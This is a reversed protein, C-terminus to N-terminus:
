SAIRLEEELTSFDNCFALDRCLDCEVLGVEPLPDFNWNHIESFAALLSNREQCKACFVRWGKTHSILAHKILDISRSYVINCPRRDLSSSRHCQYGGGFEGQAEAVSLGHISVFHKAREAVTHLKLDCDHCVCPYWTPESYWSAATCLNPGDLQKESPGSYFDWEEYPKTVVAFAIEEMHRGIHRGRNTRDLGMDESCFPCRPDPDAVHPHDLAEHQSFAGRSAYM